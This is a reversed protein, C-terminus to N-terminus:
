INNVKQQYQYILQSIKEHQIDAPQNALARLKYERFENSKLNEGLAAIEQLDNAPLRLLGMIQCVRARSVGFDRALDAYRVFQNEQQKKQWKLAVRIPNIYSNIAPDKVPSPKPHKEPMQFTLSFISGVTMNPSGSHVQRSQWFRGRKKKYKHKVLLVWYTIM